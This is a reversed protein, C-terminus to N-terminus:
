LSFTYRVAVAVVVFLVIVLGFSRLRALWTFAIMALAYLLVCSLLVGYWPLLSLSSVIGWLSVFVGLVVLLPRFIQLRVLLFLGLGAGIIGAIVEGYQGAPVCKMAQSGHCLLTGLVYDSLVFNLLWIVLGVGAGVLVALVMRRLELAVLITRVEEENTESM